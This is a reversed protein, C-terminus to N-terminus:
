SEPVVGDTMWCGAQERGARAGQKSVAWTYRQEYRGVPVEHTGVSITARHAVFTVHFARLESSPQLVLPIPVGGRTFPGSTAEAAEIRFSDYSCMIPFGHQIMRGFSEAPGTARKNGPSAFAFCKEMAERSASERRAAGLAVVQLEVVALPSLERCPSHLRWCRDTIVTVGRVTATLAAVGTPTVAECGSIDLLSSSRRLKPAFAAIIEDDVCAMGQLLLRRLGGAQSREALRLTADRVLQGFADEDESPTRARLNAGIDLSDRFKASVRHWRRNVSGAALSDRTSLFNLARGLTEDLLM